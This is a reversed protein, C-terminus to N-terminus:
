LLKKNNNIINNVEFDYYNCFVDCVDNCWETLNCMFSFEFGM